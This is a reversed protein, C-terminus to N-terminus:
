NKGCISLGEKAFSVNSKLEFRKITIALLWGPFHSLTSFHFIKPGYGIIQAKDQAAALLKDMVQFYLPQQVQEVM